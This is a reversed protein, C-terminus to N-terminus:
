PRFVRLHETSDGPIPKNSQIEMSRILPILPVDPKGLPKEWAEVPVLNQSHTKVADEWDKASSYLEGQDDMEKANLFGLYVLIVPVGLDTLKWAWAFRNSMQYHSDRSLAWPLQTMEHLNESAEDIAQGIQHHNLSSNESSDPDLKKGIEENALEAAHAKAEVLFLGRQFGSTTSVHCTGAIDFNPTRSNGTDSALWWKKLKIRNEKILMLEAKPLEAERIDKFGMPLWRDGASVKGWPALLTSLREAVVEDEGETLWHCRPKSGRRQNEKLLDLKKNM